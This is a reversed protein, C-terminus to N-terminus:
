TADCVSLVDRTCSVEWESVKDGSRIGGGGRRGEGRRDHRDRDRRNSNGTEGEKRLTTPENLQPPAGVATPVVTSLGEVPHQQSPSLQASMVQATIGDLPDTAAVSAM